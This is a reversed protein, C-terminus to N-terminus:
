PSVQLLFSKDKQEQWANSFRTRWVPSAIALTLHNLHLTHYIVADSESVAKIDDEDLGHGSFSISSSVPTDSTISTIHAADCQPSHSSTPNDTTDQKTDLGLTHSPKQQIYM